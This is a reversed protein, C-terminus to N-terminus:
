VDRVVCTAACDHAMELTLEETSWTTVSTAVETMTPIQTPTGNGLCTDKNPEQGRSRDWKPSGVPLLAVALKARLIVPVELSRWWLLTSISNSPCPVTTYYDQWKTGTIRFKITGQEKALLLKRIKYQEKHWMPVDLGSSESLSKRLHQLTTWM